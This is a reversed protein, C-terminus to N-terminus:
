RPSVDAFARATRAFQAAAASSARDRHRVMGLERQMQLGPIQLATIDSDQMSRPLVSWGLGISVLMKITELYNTALRVRLRTDAKALAAKIIRHTYTQEDPLVAPHEALVALSLQRCDALPHAPGIIVDLPDPWLLESLLRPDPEPPLTVVAMELDGSLVADCAQESDMFHIDLDVDPFAQTFQRLVPPLRHLGIHHSTGISLRGSVREHLHSLGRQADTLARLIQEAYPLLTHGAETLLVQRGVRDLLKQGIQSELSAIRKSAAPQSIHLAQASHSFSGSRAIAVFTRLSQTDM